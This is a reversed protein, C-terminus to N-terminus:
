AMQATADQMAVRDPLFEVYDIGRRYPQEPLPNALHTYLIKEALTMPRKLLAKAVELKGQLERYVSSILEEDFLM